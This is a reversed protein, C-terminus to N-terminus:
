DSSSGIFVLSFNNRVFLFGFDWFVPYYPHGDKIHFSYIGTSSSIIKNLSTTLDRLLSKFQHSNINEQSPGSGEDGAYMLSSTVTHLIEPKEVTNITYFTINRNLTKCIIDENTLTKKHQSTFIGLFVSYNCSNENLIEAIENLLEQKM